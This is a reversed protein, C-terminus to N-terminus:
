KTDLEKTVNTNLAALNPKGKRRKGPMYGFWKDTQQQRCIIDTKLKQLQNTLSRSVTGM